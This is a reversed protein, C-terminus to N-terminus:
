NARIGASTIVERWKRVDDRIRTGLADPSGPEPEVGHKAFAERLEADALVAAVERNLRAIIAPPTAAPAVMAIWLSAEYGAIGAEAV